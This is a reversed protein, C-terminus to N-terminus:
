IFENASSDSLDYLTNGYELTSVFKVSTLPFLIYKEVDRSFLLEVFLKRNDSFSSFGM